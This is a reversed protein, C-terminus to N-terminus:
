KHTPGTYIGGARVASRGGDAFPSYGYSSAMMFSGIIGLSWLGYLFSGRSM